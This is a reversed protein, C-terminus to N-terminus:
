ISNPLFLQTVSKFKLKFYERYSSQSRIKLWKQLKALQKQSIRADNGALLKAFKLEQAVLKLKNSNASIAASSSLNESNDVPDKHQQSSQLRKKKLKKQHNPMPDTTKVAM